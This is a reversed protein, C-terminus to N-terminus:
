TLVFYFSISDPTHGSCCLCLRLTVISLRHFLLLSSNSHRRRRRRWRWHDCRPHHCCFIFRFLKLQASVLCGCLSEANLGRLLRAEISENMNIIDNAMTRRIRTRAGKKASLPFFNRWNGWGSVGVFWSAPNLIRNAKTKLEFNNNIHEVWIAISSINYVFIIFPIPLHDYRNRIAMRYLTCVCYLRLSCVTNCLCSFTSTIYHYYCYCCCHLSFFIDYVINSGVCSSFFLSLCLCLCVCLPLSHSVLFLLTWTIPLNHKILRSQSHFHGQENTKAAKIATKIIGSKATASRDVSVRISTSISLLLPIVSHRM